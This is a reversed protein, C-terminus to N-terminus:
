AMCAEVPDFRNRYCSVDDALRAGTWESEEMIKEGM